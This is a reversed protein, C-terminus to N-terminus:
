WDVPGRNSGRASFLDPPIVSVVLAIAGFATIGMIGLALLMLPTTM